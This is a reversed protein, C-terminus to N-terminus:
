VSFIGRAIVVSNGPGSSVDRIEEYFDDDEQAEGVPNRSLADVNTHKMRPRHLIKFSFDQLLNIWRGRRGNADSVTALWELPKHDPRLTFHTCHLYQRFHMIGWILAYCEGEM